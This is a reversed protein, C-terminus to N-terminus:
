QYVPLDNCLDVSEDQSKGGITMLDVYVHVLFYM